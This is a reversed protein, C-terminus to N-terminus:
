TRGSCRTPALESPLTAASASDAVLPDSTPCPYRHCGPAFALLSGCIDQEGAHCFFCPQLAPRMACDLEQFRNLVQGAAQEQEEESSSDTM